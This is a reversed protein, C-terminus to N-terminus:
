EGIFNTSIDCTDPNSHVGYKGIHQIYSDRTCICRLGHKQKLEKCLFGDFHQQPITKFESIIKKPFAVGLGNLTDREYYGEAIELLKNDPNGHHYKCCFSSCILDESFYYILENLKLLWNKNLICDSDLNILYDIDENEFNLISNHYNLKSGLNYNNRYKYLKVNDDNIEYNNIYELLNKDESHDDFIKIITNPLFNSKKFSELMKYAYEFRNFTTIIIGFKKNM